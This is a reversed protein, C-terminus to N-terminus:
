KLLESLFYYAFGFYIMVGSRGESDVVAVLPYQRRLFLEAVKGNCLGQLAARRGAPLFHPRAQRLRLHASPLGRCASLRQRRWM